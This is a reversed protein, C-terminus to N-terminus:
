YLNSAQRGGLRQSTAGPLVNVSITAYPNQLQGIIMFRIFDALGELLRAQRLGGCDVAVFGIAAALEMVVQRAAADDGCVFASVQHTKLPSPALEFVEQAMTNFAKV